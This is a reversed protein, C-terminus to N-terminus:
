GSFVTLGLSLLVGCASYTTISALALFAALAVLMVASHAFVKRRAM